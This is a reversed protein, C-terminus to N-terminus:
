NNGDTFGALRTKTERLETRFYELSDRAYELTVNNPLQKDHTIRATIANAWFDFGEQMQIKRELWYEEAQTINQPIPTPTLAFSPADEGPRFIEVIGDDNALMPRVGVEMVLIAATILAVIFIAVLLKDLICGISASAAKALMACPRRHWRADLWAERARAQAAESHLIRERQKQREIERERKEQAAKAEAEMKRQFEREREARERDLRREHEAKSRDAEAADEYDRWARDFVLSWPIWQPGGWISTNQVDGISAHYEHEAAEHKRQQEREREREADRQKQNAKRREADAKRETSKQEAKTQHRPEWWRPRDCAPCTKFKPGQWVHECKECAREAQTDDLVIRRSPKADGSGSDARDSAGEGGDTDWARSFCNPCRVPRGSKRPTWTNGCKICTLSEM